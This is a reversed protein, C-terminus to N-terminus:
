AHAELTKLMYEKVQNLSQQCKGEKEIQQRIHEPDPLHLEQQAQPVRNETLDKDMLAYGIFAELTQARDSDTAVLKTAVENLYTDSMDSLLKVVEDPMM